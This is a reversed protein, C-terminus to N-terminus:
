LRYIIGVIIIIGPYIIILYNSGSLNHDDRSLPCGRTVGSGGM